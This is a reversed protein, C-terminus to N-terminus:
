KGTQSRKTFLSKQTYRGSHERFERDGGYGHGREWCYIQFKPVLASRSGQCCCCNCYSIFTKERRTEQAFACWRKIVGCAGMPPISFYLYGQSAIGEARRRRQFHKGRPANVLYQRKIPLRPSVPRQWSLHTM